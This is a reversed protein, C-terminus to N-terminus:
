VVDSFLQEVRLVLSIVNEAEKRGNSLLRVVCYHGDDRAANIHSLSKM